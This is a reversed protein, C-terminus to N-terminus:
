SSGNFYHIKGNLITFREMAKQINVLPYFFFDNASSVLWPVGMVRRKGVGPVGMPCGPPLPEKQTSGFADTGRHCIPTSFILQTYLVM